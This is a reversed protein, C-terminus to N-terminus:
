PSNKQTALVESSLGEGPELFLPQVGVGSKPLREELVAVRAELDGGKLAEMHKEAIRSLAEGDIPSIKGTAIADIIFSTMKPVESGKTAIPLGKLKIPASKKIPVLRELILRIMAPNGEQAMKIAKRAIAESEAEFINEAAITVKNRSGKPRGKGHKNGQKFEGNNSSSKVRANHGLLFENWQGNTGKQTSQGCGCACKPATGRKWKFAM